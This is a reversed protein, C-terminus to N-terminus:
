TWTQELICTINDTDEGLGLYAWTPKHSMIYAIFIGLPNNKVKSCFWQVFLAILNIVEFM